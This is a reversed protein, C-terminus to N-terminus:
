PLSQLIHNLALQDYQSNGVKASKAAQADVYSQFKPHSGLLGVYTIEGALVIPLLVDPYGSLLAFGSSGLFALLNWHNLFAVKLYNLMM